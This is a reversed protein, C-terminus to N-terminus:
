IEMEDLSIYIEGISENNEILILTKTTSIGEKNYTAAASYDKIEIDGVDESKSTIEITHKKKNLIINHQWKKITNWVDPNSFAEFLKQAEAYSAEEIRLERENLEVSYLIDKVLSKIDSDLNNENM